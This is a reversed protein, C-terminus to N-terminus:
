KGAAPTPNAMFHDVMRGAIGDLAMELALGQTINTAMISFDQSRPPEGSGAGARTLAASSYSGKVTVTKRTRSQDLLEPESTDVTIVRAAESQDNRLQVGRLRLGERVKLALTREPSAEDPVKVFVGELPAAEIPSSRIVQTKTFATGETTSRKGSDTIRVTRPPIGPWTPLPATATGAIFRIDRTFLTSRGAGIGHGQILLLLTLAAFKWANGLRPRDTTRPIQRPVKAREREVEKVEELPQKFARGSTTSGSAGNGDKPLIPLYQFDLAADVPPHGAEWCAKVDVAHLVHWQNADFTLRSEAKQMARQFDEFNKWSTKAPADTWYTCDIFGIETWSAKLQDRSLFLPRLEGPKSQPRSTWFGLVM